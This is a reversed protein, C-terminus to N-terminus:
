HHAQNSPTNQIDQESTHTLVFVLAVTTVTAVVGNCREKAICIRTILAKIMRSTIVRYPRCLMPKRQNNKSGINNVKPTVARQVAM